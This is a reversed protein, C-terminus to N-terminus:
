NAKISPDMKFGVCSKSQPVIHVVCRSKIGNLPDVCGMEKKQTNKLKTNTNRKKTKSCRSRFHEYRDRVDKFSLHSQKGLMTNIHEHLLYIYKSFSNRSRFVYPSLPLKKLNQRYNDRCYKCPLTYKLSLMFQKHYKKDLKSPRLPYNFSMTHLFHWLSPGWVKTLMGDNSEYDTKKFVLKKNKKLTCQKNYKQYIKNKTKRTKM